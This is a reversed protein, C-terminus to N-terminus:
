SRRSCRLSNLLLNVILDLSDCGVRNETVSFLRGSVSIDREAFREVLSQLESTRGIQKWFHHKGRATELYRSLGEV